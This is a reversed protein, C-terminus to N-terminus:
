TYQRDCSCEWEGDANRGMPRNCRGCISVDILPGGIVRREIDGADYQVYMVEIVQAPQETSQFEHWEGPRTTFIQGKAVNAVGDATKIRIHGDVVYFLNFKAQHRHWSCRQMPKLSLVSVECLDNIFINVKEGWSKFSREM